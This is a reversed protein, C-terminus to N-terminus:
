PAHDGAALPDYGQIQFPSMRWLNEGADFYPETIAEQIAAADTHGPDFTIRAEAWGPGPWAAIHLYGPLAFLDDRELFYALLNARGRCTLDSIHLVVTQTQAPPEGRAKIFSPVPILYSAAVAGLTCGLLVALLLWQPWTRGRPWAPGWRLARERTQSVPCAAVCELCSMCRAATVQAVRDVPIAMPCRRACQACQRCSAADRAIRTVGIRSVVNLVAALPCFWRCFPISILLSGVVIAGSVLYAWYTIDDGHRSLLAYCPDFGRFILEGARYTWVLVIALVGYKLASLARDWREPVHVQPVGWRRGFAHVWESLSGIPCLYGCFARRLLLTAALVGGLVFFNSVGLSCLMNGEAVYTYIAEVGGFPCWRECNARLLFVGVIVLALSLAQVSRRTRRV